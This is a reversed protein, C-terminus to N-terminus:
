LPCLRLPLLCCLSHPHQKAPIYGPGAAALSPETRFASMQCFQFLGEVKRGLSWLCCCLGTVMCRELCPGHRGLRQLGLVSCLVQRLTPAGGNTFAAPHLPCLVPNLDPRVTVGLDARQYSHLGPCSLSGRQARGERYFSASM